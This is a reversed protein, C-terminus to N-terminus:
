KKETAEYISVHPVGRIGTEAFVIERYAKLKDIPLKKDNDSIKFDPNYLENMIAIKEANTKAKKARELIIKSKIYASDQHVPAFYVKVSMTKLMEPLEEQLHMRCFPCEPDSIVIAYQKSAADESAFDLSYESPIKSTIDLVKKDLELEQAQFKKNDKLIVELKEKIELSLTDDAILVSGFGNIMTGDSSIFIPLMGEDPTVINAMIMNSNKLKSFHSLKVGDPFEKLLPAFNKSFEASNSLNLADIDKQIDKLELAFAGSALVAIAAVSFFKQKM